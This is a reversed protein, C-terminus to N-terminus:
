DKRLLMSKRFISSKKRKESFINKAVKREDQRQLKLPCLLRDKYGPRRGIEESSNKITLPSAPTPPRQSLTYIKNGRPATLELIVFPKLVRNKTLRLGQSDTHVFTENKFHVACM